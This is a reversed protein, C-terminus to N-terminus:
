RQSLDLELDLTHVAFGAQRYLALAPTNVMDVWLVVRTLGLARLHQLGAHLLLAGVGRGGHEPHVALNYVEGTHADRQKLWHLGVVAGTGDEAVLLDDARFWPYALRAALRQMDWGGDATGAYARALVEVVAADDHGERFPRVSVPMDPKPAPVPRPLARVCVALRRAVAGVSSFMEVQTPAVGRIWVRKPANPAGALWRVCETLYTDVAALDGSHGTFAAYGVLEGDVSFTIRTIGDNPVAGADAHQLAIVDSEDVRTLGYPDDDPCVFQLVTAASHTTGLPSV